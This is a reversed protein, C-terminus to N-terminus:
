DKSRKSRVECKLEVTTAEVRILCSKRINFKNDKHTFAVRSSKSLSQSYIQYMKKGGKWFTTTKIVLLYILTEFIFTILRNWHISKTCCTRGSYHPFQTTYVLVFFIIYDYWPLGAYTWCFTDHEFYNVSLLKVCVM